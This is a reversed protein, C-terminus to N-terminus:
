LMPRHSDGAVQGAPWDEGSRRRTGLARGPALIGCVLLDGGREIELLQASGPHV